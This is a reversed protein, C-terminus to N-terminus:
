FWAYVAYIILGAVVIGIVTFIIIGERDDRM